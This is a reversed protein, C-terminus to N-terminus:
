KIRMGLPGTTSDLRFEISRGSYISAVRAALDTAGNDFNVQQFLIYDGDDAWGVNRTQGVDKAPETDIGSQANFDEAELQIFAWHSFDGGPHQSIGGLWLKRESTDGQGDVPPVPFGQDLNYHGVMEWRGAVNDYIQTQISGVRRQSWFTPKNQSCSAPYADCQLDGPTDPFDTPWTCTGGATPNTCRLELNFLVRAHPQETQGAATTYEIRILQGARVYLKRFAERSDNRAKYYNTEIDYFYNTVNGNTDEMRDLNWQWAKDCLDYLFNGCSAANVDYVTAYFVSNQDAGSETVFEGGFRYRIGDPTTVVWYEKQADPHGTAGNTFMEVLWHPDNQLRYRNGSEKVLRSSVGNLVLSYNDGTLCLDGPAQPSNCTKLHRVIAGSQLSWGIGVSGPQNNRSTHMGDIAGSNYNLNVHPAAGGRPPPVPITYGTTLAGTHLDVQYDRVNALPTYSYDGQPGAALPSLVYYAPGGSAAVIDALIAAPTADETAPVSLLPLSLDVVLREGARDNRVTLPEWNLCNLVEQKPEERPLAGRIRAVREELGCNSVRYLTLRDAFSGGYNLPIQSYDLVLQLPVSESTEADATTLALEFAFQAPSLDNALNLELTQSWATIAAASETKRSRTVYLPLEGMKVTGAQPMTARAAGQPVELPLQQSRAAPAGLLLAGALALALIIAFHTSRSSKIMTEERVKRLFLLPVGARRYILFHSRL